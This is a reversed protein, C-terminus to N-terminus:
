SSSTAENEDTDDNYDKRGDVNNTIFETCTDYKM